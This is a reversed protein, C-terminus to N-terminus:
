GTERDTTQLYFTSAGLATHRAAFSKNIMKELALSVKAELDRDSVLFSAVEDEGATATAGLPAYINRFFGRKVDVYESFRMTVQPTHAYRELEAITPDSRADGTTPVVSLTIGNFIFRYKKNEWLIEQTANQVLPYPFSIDLKLDVKYPKEVKLRLFSSPGMRATYSSEQNSDSYYCGLEIPKHTDKGTIVEKIGGLNVFGFNFFNDPPQNANALINRLAMIGYMFSSKGAGNSGTLVTIPRIDLDGDAVSRFNKIKFRMTAHDTM